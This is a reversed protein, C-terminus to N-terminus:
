PKEYAWVPVGANTYVRVRKYGSERKDLRALTADDVIVVHGDIQGATGFTAALNGDPLTRVRGRVMDHYAAPLETRLTGYVFLRHTGM